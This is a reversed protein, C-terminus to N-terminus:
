KFLSSYNFYNQFKAATQEKTQHHISNIGLKSAVEVFLLRDDVYIVDSPEAHAIDLALRFIAFDPKLVGVYSSIVFIDMFQDLGFTPIRYDSLERGENSVGVIKLNYQEKLSRIFEIMSNLPKSQEFMFDKFDNHTFPQKRYFVVRNLYEDLSIKGTEYTNFTLQHRENMEKEDLNFYTAAKERAERDWGNTLLVGGIDLFLTTIKTM